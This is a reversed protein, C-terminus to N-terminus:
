KKKRRGRSAISEQLGKVWEDHKPNTKAGREVLLDSIALVPEVLALDLVDYRIVPKGAKADKPNPDAGHDLLMRVM